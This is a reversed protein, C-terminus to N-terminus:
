SFMGLFADGVEKIQGIFLLLIIVVVIAIIIKALKGFALGSGRKGKM